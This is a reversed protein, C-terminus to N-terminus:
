EFPSKYEENELFTYDTLTKLFNILDAKDQESLLLGTSRTNLIAPDVTSSEKIGSNYHDIVEELTNFRGDHMYPATVEINRLSPVKFKAKDSPDKTVEERGIDMFKSDSDLGNNMYKDNEFNPGGHCHQCDAGSLEPFFPNYEAFYLQRGREESETLTETGALFRDYKSDNSVISLMFQEMALAIDDILIEDKNFARKFQDVYEEEASLKAIVNDLTENM